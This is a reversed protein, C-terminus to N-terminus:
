RKDILPSSAYKKYIQKLDAPGGSAREGADPGAARVRLYLYYFAVYVPDPTLTSANDQYM